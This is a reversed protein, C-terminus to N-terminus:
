ACKWSLAREYAARRFDAVEELLASISIWKWAVFERGDPRPVCGTEDFLHFFFWKQIQGRRIHGHETRARIEEPWEYAIWEGHESTLDVCSSTLGTEEELERWAADVPMEGIDIGGQPLQWSGRVDGREFVLVDGDSREVVLIVGARFVQSPM